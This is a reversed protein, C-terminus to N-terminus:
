ARLRRRKQSFEKFLKEKAEDCFKRIRTVNRDHDRQISQADPHAALDSRLRSEEHAVAREYDIAAGTIKREAQRHAREVAIREAVLEDQLGAQHKLRAEEIAQNYTERAEDVAEEYVRDAAKRAARQEALLLKKAKNRAAQWKAKAKRVSQDRKRHTKDRTDRYKREEARLAQRRNDETGRVDRDRTDNAKQSTKLQALKAQELAKHYRRLIKAAGGHESLLRDREADAEDIQRACESELASIEESLELTLDVLTRGM